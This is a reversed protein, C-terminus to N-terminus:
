KLLVQKKNEEIAQIIQQEVSNLEKIKDDYENKRFYINVSAALHGLGKGAEPLSKFIPWVWRYEEPILDEGHISEVKYIFSNVADAVGNKIPKENATGAEKRLEEMAKEKLIDGNPISIHKLLLDGVNDAYEVMNYNIQRKLANSLDQYYKKTDKIKKLQDQYKWIKREADAADGEILIPKNIQEYYMNIVTKNNQQGTSYIIHNTPVENPYKDAISKDFAIIKKNYDNCFNIFNASSDIEIIESDKGTKSNKIEDKHDSHYQVCIKLRAVDKKLEDTTKESDQAFINCYFMTEIFLLIILKNMNWNKNETIRTM